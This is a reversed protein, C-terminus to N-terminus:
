TLFIVSDGNRTQVEYYRIDMNHKSILYM